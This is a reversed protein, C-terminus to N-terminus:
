SRICPKGSRYCCAPVHVVREYESGALARKLKFDFTVLSIGRKRCLAILYADTIQRHGQLLGRLRDGETRLSVEDPVFRHHKDRCFETLKDIAECVSPAVTPYGPNSVVRVFGNETIPCTAWGDGRATEFWLHASEHHVHAPDFLAILVNVDPLQM